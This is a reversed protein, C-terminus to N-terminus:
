EDGIDASQQVLQEKNNWLCYKQMNYDLNHVSRSSNKAKFESLWILVLHHRSADIGVVDASQQMLQENNNAM